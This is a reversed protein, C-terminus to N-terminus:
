LLGDPAQEETLAEPPVLGRDGDTVLEQSDDGRGQPVPHDLQEGALGRALRHDVVVGDGGHDHALQQAEEDGLEEPRCLQPGLLCAAVGFGDGGEGERLRTGEPDCRDSTAIYPLPTYYHLRPPSGM